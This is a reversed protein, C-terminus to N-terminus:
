QQVEPQEDVKENGNLKRNKVLHTWTPFGHNSGTDSSTHFVAATPGSSSLSWPPTDRSDQAATGSTSWEIYGLPVFIAGSIQPQWLYYMDATFSRTEESLSRRLSNGPSDSTETTVADVPDDPPYPLFNDLGVGQNAPGFSGGSIYTGSLTDATIVQIWETTGDGDPVNSLTAKFSIGKVMPVLSCGSTPDPYGFYLLQVITPCSMPPPVSWSNATPAITVIPGTVNFTANATESCQNGVSPINVCYQYTVPINSTQYVWYFAVNNKTLDNDKLEVVRGSATTPAYNKIRTGKVTWVTKYPKITAPLNPNTTLIIPQGVVVNQVPPDSGDTTSIVDQTCNLSPDCHIENGLVQPQTALSASTTTNPATGVTVTATETPDSAPPAVGTLTIKEKSDVNVSSVPVTSGDAAAITVPTKPCSDTAKAVTVFGTGKIVVNDYTKGAFWTSPTISAITPPTCDVIQVTASASYGCEDFCDFVTVTITANPDSAAPSVTLTIQSASNFTQNTIPYDGNDDTSTVAGYEGCFNAGNITVTTTQGAPWTSPTISSISPVNYACYDQAHCFAPLILLM